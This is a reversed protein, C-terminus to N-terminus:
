RGAQFYVIPGIVPFFLIVLIWVGLNKRNRKNKVLDIIAWFNLIVILILMAAVLYGIISNPNMHIAKLLLDTSEFKKVTILLSYWM